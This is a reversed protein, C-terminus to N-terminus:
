QAIAELYALYDARLKIGREGALPSYFYPVEWSIIKSGVQQANALQARL